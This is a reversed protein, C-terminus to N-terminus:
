VALIGDDGSRSQHVVGAPKTVLSDNSLTEWGPPIFEYGGSVWRTRANNPIECLNNVIASPGNEAAFVGNREPRKLAASSSVSSWGCKPRLM